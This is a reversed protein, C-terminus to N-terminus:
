LVQFVACVWIGVQDQVLLFYEVLEEFAGELDRGVSVHCETQLLVSEGVDGHEPHLHQLWPDSIIAKHFSGYKNIRWLISTM